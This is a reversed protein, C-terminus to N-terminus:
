KSPQPCAERGLKLAHEAIPELDLSARREDLRDFDEVDGPKWTGDPQCQGQTGYRQPRGEGNAVRDWLYALNRPDTQGPPLGQLYALTNRQFERDRDAHQVLLWADKDAQAGYTPIDFWGIAELQGRLWATDECDVAMTRSLKLAFWHGAASPPLGASWEADLAPDRVAQDRVIRAQLERVRQKRSPAKHSSPARGIHADMRRLALRLAQHDRSWSAVDPSQMLLQLWMAARFRRHEAADCTDSTLTAGFIEQQVPALWILRQEKSLEWYGATSFDYTEFDLQGTRFQEIFIRSEPLRAATAACCMCICLVAISVARVEPV